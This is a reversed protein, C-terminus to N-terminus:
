RRSAPPENTWLRAVTGDDLLESAGRREVDGVRRDGSRDEVFTGREDLMPQVAADGIVFIEPHGPLSESPRHRDRRV